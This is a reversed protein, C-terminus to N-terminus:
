AVRLCGTKQGSVAAMQHSAPFTAMQHHLLIQEMLCLFSIMLPNWIHHYCWSPSSFLLYFDASFAFAVSPSMSGVQLTTSIESGSSPPLRPGKSAELIMWGLNLLLKQHRLPTLMLVVSSVSFTVSVLSNCVSLNNSEIWFSQLVMM